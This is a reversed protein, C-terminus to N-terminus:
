NGGHKHMHSLEEKLSSKSLEILSGNELCYFKNADDIISRVDHSIALITLNNDRNVMKVIKHFKDRSIEDLNSTPEDLILLDPKKILANALYVKRKEGGSLDALSKRLLAEGDILNLYKKIEDLVINKSLKERKIRSYMGLEMFEKVEIPFESKLFQSVYSVRTDKLLSEVKKLVFISGLNPKLKGLILKLITSKGAGNNGMIIAYDGSKIDINVNKFLNLDGYSFALDKTKVVEM